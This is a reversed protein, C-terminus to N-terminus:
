LIVSYLEYAPISSASCRSFKTFGCPCLTLSVLNSFFTLSLFFSMVSVMTLNFISIKSHFCNQYSPVQLFLSFTYSTVICDVLFQMHICDICFQFVFMWDILWSYVNGTIM